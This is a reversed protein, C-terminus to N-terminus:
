LKLELLGARVVQVNVLLEASRPPPIYLLSDLLGARVPQANVPLQAGSPPPIYM